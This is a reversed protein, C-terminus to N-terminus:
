DELLKKASLWQNILKLIDITHNVGQKDIFYHDVGPYLRFDINSKSQLVEDVLVAASHPDVNTDLESQILLVPAYIQHLINLQDTSLSQKWWKFGHGSVVIDMQDSQQIQEAFKKFGGLAQTRAEVPVEAEISHLIDNLFFQGGANLAVVGDVLHSQTALMNAVLAGESGGLLIISQYHKQEAIFTIVQKYDSVRQQPSDHSLYHPPCDDREPNRDWSLESTIGYKEVTLIDTQQFYSAFKENITTNQDVSNCDSGQLLVLLNPQGRQELYYHITSDDDRKMEFSQKAHISHSTLVILALLWHIRNLYLM